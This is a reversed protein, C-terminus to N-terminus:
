ADLRFSSRVSADVAGAPMFRRLRSLLAAQGGVPLRSFRKAKLAREITRAVEIPQPSRAIQDGITDLVRMRQDNYADIPEARASAADINTRTFGPQVLTVRVGFGRVEHDLSESLGELAHKTASYVGMYPAPLFGVVSGVNVIRGSGQHRMAPLVARSMRLVGLVNVDFLARAQDLSTEEVAGLISSGANNVLGDIRGARALVADVAHTVSAEDTVDLTVGEIHDGAPQSGPRRVGAFVHWGRAALHEATVRGIGSAAGTVLVVRRSLPSPMAKGDIIIMM